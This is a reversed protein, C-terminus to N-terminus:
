TIGTDGMGPRWERPQSAAAAGPAPRAALGDAVLLDTVRQGAALTVEVDSVAGSGGGM